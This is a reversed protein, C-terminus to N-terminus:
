TGLQKLAAWRGTASKIESQSALLYHWTENDDDANVRNAWRKAAQRKGQVDDTEIDKDAKVEILWRDGGTEVVLFDPNYKRGSEAWVIPLDGIHLRVWVNVAEEDDVLNAFAREPESDFWELDFLGREWGEYAFSRAFAGHRNKTIQRSNSRAPAFDRWMVTEVYTPKGTFERQIKNLEGLLLASARELYASLLEDANGDLGEFFADLIPKVARRERVAVEERPDVVPSDLIAQTLMSRLEEISLTFGAAQVKDVATQTVLETRKTGDDGTVIRAGVVTRRLTDDPNVRLREGLRQFDRHETIDTLSFPSKIESQRVFPVRLTRRAALPQELRTAETEGAATRSTVDTVTPRGPVAVGQDVATDQQVAPVSPGALHESSATETAVVPNEVEVRERVVVEQGESNQRLVSRIRYDVFDESLVGRKKLLDEYRDHALVELTDLMQKGTYEGWPLRLGRGLVQETLITSLSPQTSLLVYVNKVDWGEKLMAVSIVVRIPSDPHEVDQLRRLEAAENAAAVKQSHVVLVANTYRGSLFSASRVTEAWQEAENIDRAVVLMIPNVKKLGPNDKVHQAAVRHKHELLTIGDMLRTPTDHKDDKRGVIVPTKVYQDAIAAALPYRYIIEDESTSKHPTATLGILAAPNLDRVASSFEPGTYAHHEDAFVVLDEAAQLRKYFGTGLRERYEHTKRDQASKPKLLAQVTFVYVKIKSNDDMATITSPNDFTDSTILCVPVGLDGVIAKAHGATFQEVTKDLIVRSPAILAINRTGRVTALYELAAAFVFTKGVGTASDVVGEFPAPQSAVDFHYAIEAAISEVAEKNPTRLDLTAAIQDLVEYNVLTSM